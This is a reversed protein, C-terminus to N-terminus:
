QLCNDAIVDEELTNPWTHNVVALPETADIFDLRENLALQNLAADCLGLHFM